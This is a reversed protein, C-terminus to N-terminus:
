QRRFGIYSNVQDTTPEGDANRAPSFRARTRMIRCIIRDTPPDATSSTVVCDSVRGDPGIILRFNVRWVGPGMAIRSPSFDDDRILSALNAHARAPEAVPSTAPAPPTPLAALGVIFNVAIMVDLSGLLTSVSGFPPARPSASLMTDETMGACAPIEKTKARLEFRFHSELKRQFSPYLPGLLVAVWCGRESWGSNAGFEKRVLPSFGTAFTLM